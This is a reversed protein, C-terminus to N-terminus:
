KVMAAKQFDELQDCVKSDIDEWEEPTLNVQRRQDKAMEVLKSEPLIGLQVARLLVNVKRADRDCKDNWIIYIETGYIGHTDFSLLVSLEGFASQPDIKPTETVLEMLATAAGPNGESMKMMANIFTDELEIRSMPDNRGKFYKHLGLVSAGPNNTRARIKHNVSM